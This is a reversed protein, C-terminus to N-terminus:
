KFHGTELWHACDEGLENRARAEYAAVDENTLTDRWRKNTGKYIFVETGGDFIAGGLPAVLPSNHKMHEFTCNEVMQEWKTEDVPIELFEAIRRMEGEMDDKLNQYHLFHVNPLDRIDWWSRINEWFPWFPHGEKDLWNLFYERLDSTTPREIAPGFDPLANLADYFMDNLYSHHSYMSWVVDRGDRAIYIYKAMPSFVLADVPLHTKLFRRHEQAEIGPLKAELPPLRFDLWASIDGIPLHDTEGNFIFQAIIQQLWTTGAKAYTAIVIDDDRFKFENWYTSDMAWFQIERTKKPWEIANDM